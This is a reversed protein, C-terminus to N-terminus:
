NINLEYFKELEDILVTINPNSAVLIPEISYELLASETTPGIAVANINIDLNEKYIISMFNHIASPSLFLIMDFNNKKLIELDENGIQKTEVNNYIVVSTVIHDQSLIKNVNDVAINSQPIFIKQQSNTLMKELQRGYEFSDKGSGVFSPAINLNRMADATANGIASFKTESSITVSLETIWYNFVEVANTSTFIVWSYENLHNFYKKIEEINNHAPEIKIMPIDIIEAGKTNCYNRIKQAKNSACTTILIKGQLPSM